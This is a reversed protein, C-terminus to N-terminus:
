EKGNMKAGCNPCYNDTFRKINPDYAYANEEKCVSCQWSHNDFPEWRGHVVPVADVIPAEEIEMIASVAINEIPHIDSERLENINPLWGVFKEKLVDADILRM